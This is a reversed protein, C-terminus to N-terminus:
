ETVNNLTSAYIYLKATNHYIVDSDALFLLLTLDIHYHTLDIHTAPKMHLLIFSHQLLPLLTFCLVQIAGQM